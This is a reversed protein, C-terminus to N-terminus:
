NGGFEGLNKFGFRLMFTTSPEIDRDRTFSKLMEMSVNFCENRYVLGANTAIMQDLILDRRLGGLVSWGGYIKATASGYVEESDTLYRNNDLSLYAASLTLWDHYFDFGVESRNPSLSGENLAFRYTFRFPDIDFAVRGIYDSFNEGATTSNPFPTDDVNYNQGLLMELSKGDAFLYQSRLGYALRPGSDITDLGPMRNLSFLNTDSLEILTNDENSIEQPNGGGPQAVALVIPEVVLSADDVRRILPYRWEVAAEPIVRTKSGDFQATNNNISVDKVTYADTRLNGTVKFVHGGETIYPIDGGLTMSIRHQDAGTDRTLSQANAFAHLKLGSAFPDTEYYGELTPLVLPTTKSSDTARLGQISLGQALGYNRRQAGEVYVRSYLTEEVGFGYRRLYTDDSARNIDFGYRWHDAFSESGKAFVHGRFENGGSPKGASDRGEPFSGSFDIDFQGDDTRQEYFGHLLPGEEAMYWPTLTVQKDPALRWYYPVKVTTGLNAGTSYEPVLFGSKADADPTPHKLWPTYFVPVGFMEMRADGYTVREDIEDIKVEDAKLQWFPAVGECLNCPTYAAKKLKTVYENERVATNAAMVSNDAMRARFNQIVGAKLDDTLEVTNAFFVDGTPQLVSVNGEARVLNRNQYYIIKDAVLLYDGQVIEVNGRAIVIANKQDYGMELAEMMVPQNGDPALTQAQATYAGLLMLAACAVQISRGLTGYDHSM